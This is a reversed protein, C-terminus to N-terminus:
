IEITVLVTDQAIGDRSLFGKDLGKRLITAAEAPREQAVFVRALQYHAVPATPDLALAIRAFAEAMDLLNLFVAERSLHVHADADDVLISAAIELSSVAISDQGNQRAAECLILHAHGDDNNLSVAKNADAFAEDHRGLALLVKARLKLAELDGPLESLVKDVRVKAELLSGGSIWATEARHFQANLSSPRPTQALGVVPTLVALLIIFTYRKAMISFILSM